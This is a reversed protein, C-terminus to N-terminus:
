MRMYMSTSSSSSSSTLDDLDFSSGSAAREFYHEELTQQQLKRRTWAAQVILRVATVIGLLLSLWNSWSLGTQAVRLLYFAQVFLKAATVLVGTTLLEWIYESPPTEAMVIETYLAARTWSRVLLLPLFISSKIWVRFRVHLANKVCSILIVFLSFLDHAVRIAMISFVANIFSRHAGGGSTALEPRAEYCTTNL